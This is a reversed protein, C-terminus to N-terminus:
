QARMPSTNISVLAATIRYWCARHGSRADHLDVVLVGPRRRRVRDIDPAARRPPIRELNSNIPVPRGDNAFKLFRYQRSQIQARQAALVQNAEARRLGAM